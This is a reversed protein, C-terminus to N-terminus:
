TLFSYHTSKNIFYKLFIILRTWNFYSINLKYSIQRTQKFKMQSPYNSRDSLRSKANPQAHLFVCSCLLCFGGVACTCVGLAINCLDYWELVCLPGFFLGSFVAPLGCSCPLQRAALSVGAIAAAAGPSASRCAAAAAAAGATTACTWAHATPRRTGRTASSWRSRRGARCGRRTTRWGRRGRRRRRWWSWPSCPSSSSSPSARPCCPSVAAARPPM